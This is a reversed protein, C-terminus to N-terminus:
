MDLPSHYEGLSEDPYENDPVEIAIEDYMGALADVWDDNPDNVGTFESTEGLLEGVWDPPPTTKEVREGFDDQVMEVYSSPLLVKHLNWANAVPQARVFKDASALMGNIRARIVKKVDGENFVTEDTVLEVDGDPTIKITVDFNNILDAAGRETTSCYWRCRGPLIRQRLAIVAAFEHAKCRMAIGDVVYILGDKRIGTLLVSKDAYSKVSYALDGGHGIHYGTTPLQRPDYWTPENFVKGGRPRPEGQYLSAFKYPNTEKIGRLHDVTWISPLLAIDDNDGSLSPLNNGGWLKAEPRRGDRARGIPDDPHYRTHVLFLFGDPSLRTMLDDQIWVWVKDRFAASEALERSKFPDDVVILRFGRGILEGGVGRACLGGGTILEWEDQRNSDKSFSLGARQAIRRISRSQSNAYSGTHTCFAVGEEPWRILHKVLAHKLTESKFHRPPVSFWYLHQGTVREQIALELQDILPALHTPAFTIRGKITPSLRPILEYLALQALPDSSGNLSTQTQTERDAEIIM